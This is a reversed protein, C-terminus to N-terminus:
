VAINMLSFLAGEVQELTLLVGAGAIMAGALRAHVAGAQTAKLGHQVVLGSAVAILYQLVGLGILYGFLVKSGVGGEQGVISDGFASGHFLGFVAFLVMATTANMARGSLVFGGVVILSLAIVAEKVPLGEGLSMMVCGALMAVIYALPALRPFGTYLAGVGVGIVFLLHDFGLLPHGIGSLLGHLFTVMPLGGLPHHALAPTAVFGLALAGAIMKKM